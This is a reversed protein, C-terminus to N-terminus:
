MYTFISYRSCKPNPIIVGVASSMKKPSSSVLWGFPKFATAHPVCTRPEFLRLGDMKPIPVMGGIEPVTPSPKIITKGVVNTCKELDM